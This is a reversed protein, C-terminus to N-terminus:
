TYRTCEISERVEVTKREGEDGLRLEVYGEGIDMGQKTRHEMPKLWSLGHPWQNLPKVSDM